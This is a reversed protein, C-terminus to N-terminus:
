PNGWFIECAKTHWRCGADELMDIIQKLQDGRVHEGVQHENKESLIQKLQMVTLAPPFLPKLVSLTRATIHDPSNVFVDVFPDGHKYSFSPLEVYGPMFFNFEYIYPLYAPTIAIGTHTITAKLTIDGKLSVSTGVLCPFLQEELPHLAARSVLIGRQWNGPRTAAEDEYLCVFHSSIVLHGSIEIPHRYQEYSLQLAESVRM